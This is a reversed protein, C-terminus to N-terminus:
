IFTPLVANYSQGVTTSTITTGSPAPRTTTTPATSPARIITGTSM